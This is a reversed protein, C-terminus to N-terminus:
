RCLGCRFRESLACGRDAVDLFQPLGVFSGTSGLRAADSLLSGTPRFDATSQTSTAQHQITVRGQAQLSANRWGLVMCADGALVGGSPQQSAKEPFLSAARKQVLGAEDCCEAATCSQVLRNEPTPTPTESKWEGDCDVGAKSWRQNHAFSDEADWHRCILAM